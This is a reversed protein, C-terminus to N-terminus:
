QRNSPKHRRHHQNRHRNKGRLLQNKKGRKPVKQIQWVWHRHRTQIEKQWVSHM